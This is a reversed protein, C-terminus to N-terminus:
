WPAHYTHGCALAKDSADIPDFCIACSAEEEEEQEIEVECAAQAGREEVVAEDCHATETSGSEAANAGSGVGAGRSPDAHVSGSSSDTWGQRVQRFYEAVSISEDSEHDTEQFARVFEDNVGGVGAATDEGDWEEDEDGDEIPDGQASSAESEEIEDAEEGEDDEISYDQESEGEDDDEDTDQIEDAPHEEDEDVIVDGEDRAPWTTAAPPVIAPPAAHWAAQFFDGLRQFAEAARPHDSKDPHVLRSLRLYKQWAM